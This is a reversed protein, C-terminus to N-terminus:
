FQYGHTYIYTCPGSFSYQKVATKYPGYTTWDTQGNSTECGLYSRIRGSGTYFAAFGQWTGAQDSFVIGTDLSGPTANAPLATLVLAAAGVASAALMTKLRLM